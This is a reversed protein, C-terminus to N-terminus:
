LGKQLPAGTRPPGPLNILLSKPTLLDRGKPCQNKGWAFVGGDETLAAAHFGGAAIAKVRKDQLVLIDRPEHVDMELAMAADALKHMAASGSDACGHHAAEAMLVYVNVAPSLTRYHM